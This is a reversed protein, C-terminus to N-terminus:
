DSLAVRLADRACDAGPQVCWGAANDRVLDQRRRRGVGHQDHSRPLNNQRDRQCGCEHHRHRAHQVDFGLCQRERGCWAWRLRCGPTSFTRAHRRIRGPIVGLLKSSRDTVYLTKEDRSFAIGNPESLTKTLLTVAKTQPDFRYVGNFGIESAFQENFDPDTFWITGDSKVTLDNPANFRKGEFNDALVTASGDVAISTIAGHNTKDGAEAEVVTGDAEVSHGNAVNSPRRLDSKNGAQDLVVVANDRVDSVILRGDPLWVPGEAFKLGEAVVEVTAGSAILGLTADPPATTEPVTSEHPATTEAAISEHPAAAGTTAVSPTVMKGSPTQISTMRPM